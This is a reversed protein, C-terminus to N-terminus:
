KLGKCLPILCLLLIIGIVGVVIGIVFQGFVMTLCMGLGLGLAGVIALLISFFTKPTVKIPAKNEMKRWIVVMILLIILGICGVVIGQQFLNWETKLCMCMGLGLFLIGIISLVLAIFNSKKM